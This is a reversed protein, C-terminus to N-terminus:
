EYAAEYAAVWQDITKRKKLAQLCEAVAKVKKKEGCAYWADPGGLAEIASRYRQVAEAKSKVAM